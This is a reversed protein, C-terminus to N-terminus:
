KAIIMGTLVLLGGGFLWRELRCRKLKRNQKVITEGLVDLRTRDNDRILSLNEVKGELKVIISDKRQLLETWRSREAKLTDIIRGQLSAFELRKAIYRSQEVTFCFHRQGDIDLIKPKLDQSFAM